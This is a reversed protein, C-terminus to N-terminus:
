RLKSLIERTSLEPADVSYAPFEDMKDLLKVFADMSKPFHHDIEKLLDPFHFSSRKRSHYEQIVKSM